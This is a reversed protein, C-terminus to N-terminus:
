PQYNISKNLNSVKIEKIFSFLFIESKPFNVEPLETKYLVDLFKVLIIKLGVM